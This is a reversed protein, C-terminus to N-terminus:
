EAFIIPPMNKYGWNFTQYYSNRYPKIWKALQRRTAAADLEEKNKVIKLYGSSWNVKLVYREPLADFDIQGPNTWSKITPVVYEPGVTRSVYDKVAFKDCCKTILPEQYYLKMWMLKENFTKPNRFNIKYGHQKEFVKALLAEKREDTLIGKKEMRYNMKKAKVTAYEDKKIHRIFYRDIAISRLSQFLDTKKFRAYEEKRFFIAKILKKFFRKIKRWIKM